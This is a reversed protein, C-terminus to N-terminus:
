KKTERVIKKGSGMGLGLWPATRTRAGYLFPRHPTLSTNRMNTRQTSSEFTGRIAPGDRSAYM